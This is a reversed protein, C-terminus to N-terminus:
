IISCIGPCPTAAEVPPGVVGPVAGASTGSCPAGGGPRGRGSKVFQFRGGGSAGGVLPGGGGSAGGVLPSDGDETPWGPMLLDSTILCAAPGHAGPWCTRASGIITGHVRETLWSLAM